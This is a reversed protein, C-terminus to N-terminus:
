TKGVAPAVDMMQLALVSYLSVVGVEWRGCCSRYEVALFWRYLLGDDFSWADGLSLCVLSCLTRSLCGLYVELGVENWLWRPLDFALLFIIPCRAGYKWTAVM